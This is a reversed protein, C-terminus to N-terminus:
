AFCYYFYTSLATASRFTRPLSHPLAVYYSAPRVRSIVGRRPTTTTPPILTMRRLGDVLRALLVPAPLLAIPFGIIQPAIITASALYAEDLV